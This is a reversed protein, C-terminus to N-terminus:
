SMSGSRQSSKRPEAVSAVEARSARASDSVMTSASGRSRSISRVNSRKLSPSTVASTAPLCIMSRAGGGASCARRRPRAIAPAPPRSLRARGPTVHLPTRGGGRVGVALGPQGGLRGRRRQRFPSAAPHPQARDGHDARCLGRRLAM